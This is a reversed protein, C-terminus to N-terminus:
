SAERHLVAHVTEGVDQVSNPPNSRVDEVRKTRRRQLFRGAAFLLVLTVLAGALFGILM